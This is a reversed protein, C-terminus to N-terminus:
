PQSYPQRAFSYFVTGPGWHNNYGPKEHLSEPVDPLGPYGTHLSLKRFVMSEGEQTRALLYFTAMPIFVLAVGLSVLLTSIISVGINKGIIRILVNTSFLFPCFVVITTLTSAFVSRMVERTGQKVSTGPDKGSGALRYINELVVVSNDVLM